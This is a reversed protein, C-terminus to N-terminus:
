GPPMRRALLWPVLYFFVLAVAMLVLAGIVAVKVADSSSGFVIPFPGILVVGGVEGRGGSRAVAALTVLFVLAVGALILAFGLGILKWFWGGGAAAEGAEGPV